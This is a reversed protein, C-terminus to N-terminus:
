KGIQRNENQMAMQNAPPVMQDQNLFQMGPGAMLPCHEQNGVNEQAANNQQIIEQNNPIQNRNNNANVLM